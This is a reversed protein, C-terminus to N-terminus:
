YNIIRLRQRVRERRLVEALSIAHIDCRQRRAFNAVDNKTLLNRRRRDLTLLHGLELLGSLRLALDCGNLRSSISMRLQMRSESIVGREPFSRINMAILQKDRSTLQIPVRSM